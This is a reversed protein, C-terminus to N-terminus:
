LWFLSTQHRYLGIFTLLLTSITGSWMVATQVNPGSPSHRQIHLPLRNNCLLWRFFRWRPMARANHPMDHKTSM